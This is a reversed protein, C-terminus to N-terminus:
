GRYEHARESISIRADKPLPLNSKRTCSWVCLALCLTAANPRKAQRSAGHRHGHRPLPHCYICIGERRTLNGLEQLTLELQM